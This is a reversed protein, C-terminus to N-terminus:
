VLQFWSMTLTWTVELGALGVLTAVHCRQRQKMSGNPRFSGNNQQLCNGWIWACFALRHVNTFTCVALVDGTGFTEAV